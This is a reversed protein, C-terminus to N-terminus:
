RVGRRPFRRANFRNLDALSQIPGVHDHSMTHRDGGETEGPGYVVWGGTEDDTAVQHSSPYRAVEVMDDDLHEAEGADDVTLRLSQGYTRRRGYTTSM